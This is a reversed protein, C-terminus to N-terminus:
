QPQWKKYETIKKLIEEVVEDKETPNMAQILAKLGKLRIITPQFSEKIRFNIFENPKKGCLLNTWYNAKAFSLKYYIGMLDNIPTFIINLLNSNINYKIKYYLIISQMSEQFEILEQYWPYDSNLDTLLKSPSLEIEKSCTLYKYALDMSKRKIKKLKSNNIEIAVLDYELKDIISKLISNIDDYNQKYIIDIIKWYPLGSVPGTGIYTVINQVTNKSEKGFEYMIEVLNMYCIDLLLIDVKLGLEKYIMNIAKCMEATGMIYPKDQSYDTLTGVFAAGHGGLVLMYHEAPCREMGWKIFNYLKAPHAMNRNGLSELLKAKGDFIHYRRVGTWMEAKDDFKELPRIIVPIDRNVRGIEVLIDIENDVSKGELDMLSRYIEPEYENNGNAYYLVVWKKLGGKAMSEGEKVAGM